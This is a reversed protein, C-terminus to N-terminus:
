ERPLVRVVLTERSHDELRRAYGQLWKALLSMWRNVECSDKLGKGVQASRVQTDAVWILVICSMTLAQSAPVYVHGSSFTSATM